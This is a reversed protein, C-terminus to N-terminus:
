GLLVQNFASAEDECFVSSHAQEIEVSCIQIFLSQKWLVCGIASTENGCFVATCDRRVWGEDLRFSYLLPNRELSQNCGHMRILPLPKKGKEAGEPEM